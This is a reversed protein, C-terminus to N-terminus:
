GPRGSRPQVARPRWQEHPEQPLRPPYQNDPADDEWGRPPAVPPRRDPRRAAQSPRTFEQPAYTDAYQATREYAAAALADAIEAAVNTYAEVTAPALERYKIRQGSAFVPEYPVRMITTVGLQGFEAVIADELSPDSGPTLVTLVVASRM